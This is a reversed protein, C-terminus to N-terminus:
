PPIILNQSFNFIGKKEVTWARSVILLFNLLQALRAQSFAPLLVRLLAGLQKFDYLDVNLHTGNPFVVFFQFLQVLFGFLDVRRNRM